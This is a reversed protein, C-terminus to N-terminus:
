TLDAGRAREEKRALVLRLVLEATLCAMLLLAAMWSVDVRAHAAGLPERRSEGSIKRPQLDMERTAVSAVRSESREGERVRYLGLVAPTVRAADPDRVVSVPGAPGDVALARPREFVWTSGVEVRRPAAHRRAERVFADLLSLFGPRLALDSEDVRFPLTLVWAEGRGLSRRLLLPAGDAWAIDVQYGHADAEGLTARGRPAIDGLTEAAGALGPHLAPRRAGAVPSPAYTPGRALFPEFTAGLPATSARRGLAILVVGGSEVWAALARRQEPTLGPPDDLVIAAFASLDQPQDPLVPLPRITSDVALALLAQEVAPAGSPGESGSAAEAVVAVASPGSETVVPAVDDEALADLGGLRAVLSGPPEAKLVLTVEARSRQVTSREVVAGKEDVIEVPRGEASASPGCAVTVKVRLGARDAGAVGCDLGDAALDPLANWAPIAGDLALTSGDRHGDALDSLLVVRKDAQPLDAILTRAVALAGELDTARDSVVLADLAAKAATRDTTAALAVRPAAGALVIAVADGEVLSAVIEHAGARARAFHIPTSPGTRRRMSMSDDLVIAVAISAGGRALSLRSCRALPTAGLLALAIVALARVGFLARDELRSRRRAMPPAPPVLHAAAFDRVDASRRRLRHALYPALVLAVLGLALATIFSM